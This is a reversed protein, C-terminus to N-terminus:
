FLGEFLDYSVFSKRVFMLMDLRPSVTGDFSSCFTLFVETAAEESTFEVHGFGRFEGEANMAFRVEHVEGVDKFFEISACGTVYTTLNLCLLIFACM